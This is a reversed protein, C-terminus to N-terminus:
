EATTYFTIQPKGEVGADTMLQKLAPDSMRAKAKAMDTIDFIIYVMNPDDNGRALLVDVLGFTARTATGESDYVKVWAEFDKVKHKISVWQKEKSDANFRIVHQYSIDPKTMVGNKQMLDKLRPNNAFDKAKQVDAAKLFIALSNANDMGRGIVIFELGSAIRNTSDTNFGPRWKDYNKVTHDIEVIDFPQFEAKKEVVKVTDAPPPTATKENNNSCSTLGLTLMSFGFLIKKM